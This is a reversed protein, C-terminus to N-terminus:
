AEFRILGVTGGLSVDEVASIGVAYRTTIWTSVRLSRSPKYGTIGSLALSVEQSQGRDYRSIKLTIGLLRLENQIYM